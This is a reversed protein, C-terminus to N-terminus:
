ATMVHQAVKADLGFRAGKIMVIINAGGSTVVHVDVGDVFGIEQLHRRMEENGRVRTVTVTDGARVMSLPMAPAQVAM